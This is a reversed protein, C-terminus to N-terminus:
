WTVTLNRLLATEDPAPEITLWDSLPERDPKRSVDRRDIEAQTRQGDHWLHVQHWAPSSDARGEAKSLPFSLSTPRISSFGPSATNPSAGLPPRSRSGSIGAPRFRCLFPM